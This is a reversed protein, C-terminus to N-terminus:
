FAGAFGLLLLARARQGRLDDTLLDVIQRMQTTTLAMKAAPAIGKARRLGRMTILVEPDALRAQRHHLTIGCLRRDITVVSRNQALAM